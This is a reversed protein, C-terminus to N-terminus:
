FELKKFAMSKKMGANSSYFVPLNRQNEHFDTLFIENFFYLGM